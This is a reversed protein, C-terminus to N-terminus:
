SALGLLRFGDEIDKMLIRLRYATIPRPGNKQLKGAAFWASEVPGNFIELFSGDPQIQIMLLHDPKSSLGISKVQTSKIQVLKGDKSKADHVEFSSPFLELGYADAALVEGISGVLHGDPTIPPRLSLGSCNM